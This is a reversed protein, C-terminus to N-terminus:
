IELSRRGSRPTPLEPLEADSESGPSGDLGLWRKVALEIQILQGATLEGVRRELRKRPVTIIQQADFVGSRNPFLCSEDQVEFRSGLRPSTTREILTVLDREIDNPLVNLVV